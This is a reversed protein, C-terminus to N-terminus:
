AVPAQRRSRRHLHGDDRSVGLSLAGDPQLGPGKPPEAETSPYLHTSAFLISKGNPHFFPCTCRGKGTSVM